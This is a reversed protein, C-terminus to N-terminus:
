YARTSAKEGANIELGTDQVRLPFLITYIDEKPVYGVELVM